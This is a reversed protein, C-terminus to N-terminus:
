HETAGYGIRKKSGLCKEEEEEAEVDFFIFSRNSDNENQSKKNGAMSNNM